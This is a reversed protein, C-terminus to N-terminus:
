YSYCNTQMSMPWVKGVCIARSYRADRLRDGSDRARRPCVEQGAMAHGAASVPGRRTRTRAIPPHMCM